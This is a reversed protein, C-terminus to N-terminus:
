KVIWKGNKKIEMYMADPALDLEGPWTVVGHEVYVQKFYDKDKLAEFVGAKDSNVLQLINVFGQLGDMFKVNLSYDDLPTVEKVRWCASPIIGIASNKSSASEKRM